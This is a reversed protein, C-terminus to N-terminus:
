LLMMLKQIKEPTNFKFTPFKDADGILMFTIANDISLDFTNSLHNKRLFIIQGNIDFIFFEVPIYPDLQYHYYIGVTKKNCYSARSYYFKKLKSKCLPCKNLNM